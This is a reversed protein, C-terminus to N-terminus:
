VFAVLRAEALREFLTMGNRIGLRALVLIEEVSRVDDVLSVLARVRPDLDLAALDELSILLVPIAGLTLAEMRSGLVRSEVVAEDEHAAPESERLGAEDRLGVRTQGSALGIIGRELMNRLHRLALLRPLGSIDLVSEVSTAGDVLSFLFASTSDLAFGKLEEASVAAVPLGAESGLVDLCECELAARCVASLEAAEPHRPTLELIHSVLFLAQEHDGDLHLRRAQEITPEVGAFSAALQKTESDRAFAAPDFEPIPTPRDEAFDRADAEPAPPREPSIRKKPPLAGM